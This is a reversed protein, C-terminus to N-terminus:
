VRLINVQVFCVSVHSVHVYLWALWILPKVVQTMAPPRQIKTQKFVKKM